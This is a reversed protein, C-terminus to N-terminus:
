PNMKSGSFVSPEIQSMKGDAFLYIGPEKIQNLANPGADAATETNPKSHPKTPISIVKDEFKPKATEAPGNSSEMMAMIITDSVKAVKLKGISAISTDCKCVSHNIKSVILPEGLRMKVLEIIKANTLVEQANQGPLIQVLVSTILIM